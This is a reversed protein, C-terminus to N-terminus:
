NLRLGDLLEFMDGELRDFDATTSWSLFQLVGWRGSAFYGYYTLPINDVTANYKMVMIEKGNTYLRRHHIVKIDSAAQRTNNLVAQKLQDLKITANEYIILAYADANKHQLSYEAADSLKEIQRWKQENFRISYSGNGGEIVNGLQNSHPKKISSPGAGDPKYVWSGDPFLVVRKGEDTIAGTAELAEVAPLALLLLVTIALIGKTM